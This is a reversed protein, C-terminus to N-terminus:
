AARREPGRLQAEAADIRLGLARLREGLGWVRAQPELELWRASAARLAALAALHWALRAQPGQPVDSAFAELQEVLVCLAAM